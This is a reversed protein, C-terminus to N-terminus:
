LPQLRWTRSEEAVLYEGAGSKLVRRRVIAFVKEQLQSVCKTNEGATLSTSCQVPNVGGGRGM